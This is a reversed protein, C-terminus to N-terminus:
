CSPSPLKTPRITAVYREEGDAFSVIEMPRGVATHCQSTWTVPGEALVHDRYQEFHAKVAEADVSGTARVADAIAQVASYGTLIPNGNVNPKGTLRSTNAYAEAIGANPTEGPTLTGVSVGYIGKTDPLGREWFNGDLAQDTVIDRTIGGQRLQRLFSVAGPAYSCLVIGDVKDQQGRLRTVQSAISADTQTVTDRGVITGGHLKFAEEFAACTSTAHALTPDVLVYVDRWGRKSAAYEAIVAGETPSGVYLNFMYPGISTGFRVDGAGSIAIKHKQMAVRAAGGGLNYDVTPIVFQAGENIVTLAANAGQAIDSKTDATVLELRHGDVGGAADIQATAAKAGNLLDGDYVNVPGTLAIPLGIKIPGAPIGKTATTSTSGTSGTSGGNDSGSGGCGAVLALAAACACLVVLRGRMSM